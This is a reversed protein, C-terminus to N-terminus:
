VEKFSHERLAKGFNLGVDSSNNRALQSQLTQLGM